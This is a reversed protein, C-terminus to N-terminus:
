LDFSSARAGAVAVGYVAASKWHGGRVCQEDRGRERERGLHLELWERLEWYFSCCVWGLESM